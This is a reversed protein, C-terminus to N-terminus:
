LRRRFGIESGSELQRRIGDRGGHSTRSLFHLAAPLSAADAGLPVMPQNFSVSIAADVNVDLANAKPLLNTARLYDAVSFSLEIPDTIGFGTASQISNAVTVKIKSNSPYSATPTFVLTADDNWTFIGAPLGSFASEVTPKNMGQNFYFIIPSFHGLASNFPPYTEVLAPPFAAQQQTTTRTAPSTQTAAPAIFNPITPAGACASLILSILLLCNLTLLFRHKMM